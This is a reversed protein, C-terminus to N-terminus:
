DFIYCPHEKVNFFYVKGNCSDSYSTLCLIENDSIKKYSYHYENNYLDFYFVFKQGILVDSFKEKKELDTFPIKNSM